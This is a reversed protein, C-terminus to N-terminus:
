DKNAPKGGERLKQREAEYQDYTPRKEKQVPGTEPIGHDRRYQQQYQQNTDNLIEYGAQSACGSLGAILLLATWALNKRTLKLSPSYTM